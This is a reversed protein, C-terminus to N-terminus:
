LPPILGQLGHEWLRQDGGQASEQRAARGLDPARVAQRLAQLLCGKELCSLLMNLCDDLLGTHPEHLLWAVEGHALM